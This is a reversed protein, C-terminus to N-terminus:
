RLESMLKGTLTTEILEAGVEVCYQDGRALLGDHKINCNLALIESRVPQM